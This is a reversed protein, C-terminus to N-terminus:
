FLCSPAYLEGRFTNGAPAVVFSALSLPNCAHFSLGKDGPHVFISILLWLDFGLGRLPSAMQAGTDRCSLDGAEEQESRDQHNSKCGIPIM